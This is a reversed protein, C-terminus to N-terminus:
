GLHTYIHTHTQLPAVDMTNRQSSFCVWFGKARLTRLFVTLIKGAAALKAVLLRTDLYRAAKPRIVECRLM